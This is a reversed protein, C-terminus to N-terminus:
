AAATNLCQEVKAATEKVFMSKEIFTDAGTKLCTYHHVFADMGSMVGIMPSNKGLQNKIARIATLGGPKWSVNQTDPMDLDVFIAELNTPGSKLYAMLEGSSTMLEVDINDPLAAGLAELFLEDDDVVAIKHKQTM